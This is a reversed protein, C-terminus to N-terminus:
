RFPPSPDGGVARDRMAHRSDSEAVGSMEATDPGPGFEQRPASQRRDVEDVGRAEANEDRRMAAGIAAQGGVRNRGAYREGAAGGDNEVNSGRHNGFALNLYRAVLVSFSGEPM